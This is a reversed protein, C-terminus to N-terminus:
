LEVGGGGAKPLCTKRVRAALCISRENRELTSTQAPKRPRWFSTLACRKSGDNTWSAVEGAIQDPFYCHLPVSGSRVIVVACSVERLRSM